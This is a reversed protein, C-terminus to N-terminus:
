NNEVYGWLELETLCTDEYKEGPAAKLITIKLYDTYIPAGYTIWDSYAQGEVDQYDYEDLLSEHSNGDSYSLEIRSIKGNNNFVNENKMYGNLLGIDTLYIPERFYIEIYEGEGNGDVGEAWCTDKNGDLVAKVSYTSTNDTLESSASITDIYLDSLLVIGQETDDVFEYIDQMGDVQGDDGMSVNESLSFEEQEASMEEEMDEVVNDAAYEEDNDIQNLSATETAKEKDFENEIFTEEVTEKADLVGGLWCLGGLIILLCLISGIGICAGVIGKRNQTIIPQQATNLNQNEM